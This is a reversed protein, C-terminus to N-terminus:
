AGKRKSKNKGCQHEPFLEIVLEMTVCGVKDGYKLFMRAMLDIFRDYQLQNVKEDNIKDM